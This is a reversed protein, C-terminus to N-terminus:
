WCQRAMSRSWISTMLPTSVGSSYSGLLYLIEPDAHRPDDHATAGVCTNAAFKFFETVLNTSGKLTIAQRTPAQKTSAMITITQILRSLTNTHLHCDLPLVRVVVRRTASGKFLIAHTVHDDPGRCEPRIDLFILNHCFKSCTVTFHDYKGGPKDYQITPNDSTHCIYADVFRIAKSPAYTYLHSCIWLGYGYLDM